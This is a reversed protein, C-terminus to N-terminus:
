SSTGAPLLRRAKEINKPDVKTLAVRLDTGLALMMEAILPHEDSLAAALAVSKDAGLSMLTKAADPADSIIARYLARDANVGASILARALGANGQNCANILEGLGDTISLPLLKKLLPENGSEALFKFMDFIDIRATEIVKKAFTQEKSDILSNLVSHASQGAMILRAALVPGTAGYDSMAAKITASIDAGAQILLRSSPADAASLLDHLVNSAAEPHTITLTKIANWDVIEVARILDAEAQKGEAERYAAHKHLIEKYPGMNPRNRMGQVLLIDELLSNDAMGADLMLKSANAADQAALELTKRVDSRQNEPALEVAGEAKAGAAILVKAVSLSAETKTSDLLMRSLDAGAKILTELKKIGLTLGDKQNKDMESLVTSVEAGASILHKVGETNGEELLRMLTSHPNVGEALLLKIAANHRGNVLPMLVQDPKLGGLRDIWFKVASANGKIAESILAKEWNTRSKLLYWMNTTLGTGRLDEMAKRGSAGLVLLTQVTSRSVSTSLAQKLAVTPDAGAAILNRIITARNPSVEGGRGTLTRMLVFSPDVGAKIIARAADLNGDECANRLHVHQLSFLKEFSEIDRRLALKHAAAIDGGTELLLRTHTITSQKRALGAPSCNADNGASVTAQRDKILSTALRINGHEVALMLPTYGNRDMEHIANSGLSREILLNAINDHRGLAIAMHIPNQGSFNLASFDVTFNALVYSVGRLDHKTIAARLSDDPSMNDMYDFPCNVTNAQHTKPEYNSVPNM